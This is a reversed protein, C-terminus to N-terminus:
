SRGTKQEKKDAYMAKDARKFVSDVGEDKGPDFIAIGIAASCSPDSRLKEKFEVLLQERNIFDQGRLIVVFEDGGIRFVPSHDFVNCVISCLKKIAANGQEHGFTDNIKKLFNLDIMAIGFSIYGESIQWVLKGVEQDYATKNRVGTLADKIALENMDKVLKKADTLEKTTDILSKIYSELEMIIAAVQTSLVAIEDNGKNSKEIDKAVNANKETTYRRVSQQLNLLKSIYRKYIYFLVCLVSLVLVICMGISQNITLFLISRNVLAIEIDVGIVGMKTENVIMPVYYAYTKGFENDYYDYGEARKGSTWAAWMKEHEELPEYIDLCLNLVDEGNRGKAERVERPADILYYMHLDQGTPVVYYTYIVGFTPRAEEFIHLYKKFKWVAFAKQVQNDLDGFAIDEGLVYGPYKQAFLSEFEIKSAEVDDVQDFPIEIEEYHSIFYNQFNIFDEGESSLISELYMAINNINDECQKKYSNTQNIYTNIGSMCLTFFTFCAFIFAFKFILSSGKSEKSFFDM